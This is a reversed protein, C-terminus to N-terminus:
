PGTDDTIVNVFVPNHTSILVGDRWQHMVEPYIDELKVTEAYRIPLGESYIRDTVGDHFVGEESTMWTDMSGTEPDPYGEYEPARVPGGFTGAMLFRAQGLDSQVWDIVAKMSRAEEARAQENTALDVNIIAFTRGNSKARFVGVFPPKEFTGESNPYSVAEVLDVRESRFFFGQGTAQPDKLNEDAVHDWQYEPLATHIRYDPKHLTEDTNVAQNLVEMAALRGFDQVAMIDQHTIAEVWPRLGHQVDVITGLRKDAVPWEPIEEEPDIDAHILSILPLEEYREQPVHDREHDALFRNENMALEVAEESLRFDRWAKWGEQSGFGDVNWAGVRIDNKEKKLRYFRSHTQQRTRLYERFTDGDPKYLQEWDNWFYEYVEVGKPPIVFAAQVSLSTTVLLVAVAALVANMRM